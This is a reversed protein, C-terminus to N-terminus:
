RIPSSCVPRFGSDNVRAGPHFYSRSAARALDPGSYWGGGRLVRPETGSLQVRKPEGYENRCWQWVNGSLDMVGEVSAGAPYIGVASTRGLNHPGSDVWTEYLNASGAVYGNGWPYERGDRGRAAREWQWETPLTVAYGLRESLWGCYAMAEWWSVTERPSNGEEWAGKEPRREPNTMGAWWRDAGYGEPDELFVQYQWNTVPYRAMYFTEERRREGQQYVFEGGPIRVWDIDPWGDARLGVGRRDDLGLRGLARGVAARGEPVREGLLRGRWRGQLEALLEGRGKVEAGSELVCRAAVEPQAEGLWRVVPRCDEGYLGALLVASEEWGTREWWQGVPWLEGASLLGLRERMARATFYEQLLQHRFRLEEGGELITSDLAKKLVGGGLAGEAERREVVTLVGGGRRSMEWALGSLGAMLAEGEGRLRWEGSEGDRVLLRERSLLRNVFRDFLEGRNQPLSGEAARVQYLMTLLFPNAALRLLSRPDRVCRDRLERDAWTMDEFFSWPKDAGPDWFEEETAGARRWKELVGALGADGALEWFIREGLEAGGGGNAAWQRLASRVRQPTLPELTLTDLGLELEGTYDEARCSVILAAARAAMARVEGAKAGRKGTPVENLGDLLLVMREVGVGCEPREAALFAALGEDGVWRGLEVLVPWPASGDRRAREALELALRRLTTSKGGGPAGLLAARRVSGFATLIDEYERTEVAEGRPGSRHRLLVIDPDDSWAALLTEAGGARRAVGVGSLPSYLRAKAEVERILGELYGKPEAPVKPWFQHLASRLEQASRIRDNPHVSLCRMCVDVLGPSFVGPRLGRPDTPLLDVADARAEVTGGFPREWVLLEWFILGLSYIDATLDAPPTQQPLGLLDPYFKKIVEPAMYDWTGAARARAADSNREAQLEALGFDALYVEGRDDMLINEPKLDQHIAIRHVAVLAEALRDIIRVIEAEEAKEQGNLRDRLTRPVWRMPFYAYGEDTRGADEFRMVVASHDIVPLRLEIPAQKAGPGGRSSPFLVKVAVPRGNATDEAEYVVGQAGKQVARRLLFRGLTRGAFIPTV